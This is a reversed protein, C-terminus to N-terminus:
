NISVLNAMFLTKVVDKKIKVIGNKPNLIVQVIAITWTVFHERSVENPWVKKLIAEM